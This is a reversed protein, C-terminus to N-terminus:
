DRLTRTYGHFAGDARVAVQVFPALEGDALPESLDDWRFFYLQRNLNDELPHLRKKREAFDPLERRLLAEARARLEAVPLRDGPRTAPPLPNGGPGPGAHVIEDRDPDYWHETDHDDVYITLTGHDTYPNAAKRLFHLALSDDGRLARIRTLAAQNEGGNPTDDDPGDTEHDFEDMPRDTVPIGAAAPM